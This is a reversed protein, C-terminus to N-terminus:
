ATVMTASSVCKDKRADPINPEPADVLAGAAVQRAIEELVMGYHRATAIAARYSVFALLSYMTLGEAAPVWHGTFAARVSVIVALVSFTFALTCYMDLRARVGTQQDALAGSLQGSHRLVYGQVDEAADATRPLRDEAARLTNGLMTPLVRHAEPYRQRRERLADLRRLEEPACVRRWAPVAGPQEDSNDPTHRAALAKRLERRARELNGRRRNHRRILADACFGLPRTQGWYGELFRIIEFAFAQLVVAAFILAFGLVVLTGAGSHILTDLAKGINMGHADMPATVIVALNAVMVTSPLWASVSLQDLIRGGLQSLGQVADPRTAESDKETGMRAGDAQPPSEKFGRV